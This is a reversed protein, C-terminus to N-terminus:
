CGILYRSRKGLAIQIIRVLVWSSLLIAIGHLLYPWFGTHKMWGARQLIHILVYHIFFIGFSCEALSQVMRYRQRLYRAALGLCFLTFSIKQLQSFNAMINGGNFYEEFYALRQENWYALLLGYSIACFLGFVWLTRSDALWNEVKERHAGIMVGLHYIGFFHVFSLLPNDNYYSRFTFVSLALTVPLLCAGARHRIFFQFLPAALYFLAIMPVFWLPGLVYWGRAYIWILYELRTLWDGYYFTPTVQQMQWRYALMATTVLFYPLIVWLIKKGLYSPYDLRRTLYAFLYGAIFVFLTTGNTFFAALVEHADLADVSHKNSPIHTFVVFVIALARMFELHALFPRAPASM